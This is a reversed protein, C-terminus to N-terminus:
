AWVLEQRPGLRCARHNHTQLPTQPPHTAIRRPCSIPLRSVFNFRFLTRAGSYIRIVVLNAAPPLCTWRPLRFDSSHHHVYGHLPGHVAHTAVLMILQPTFLNMVFRERRVKPLMDSDDGWFNDYSPFKLDFMRLYVWVSMYWPFLLVHFKDGM